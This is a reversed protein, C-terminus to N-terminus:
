YEIAIGKAEVYGLERLGLRFADLRVSIASPTTTILFGIRPIKTPEQAEISSYMAFLLVALAPGIVSRSVFSQKSRLVKM